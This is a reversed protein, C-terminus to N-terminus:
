VSKEVTTKKYIKLLILSCAYGVCLIVIRPKCKRAIEDGDGCCVRGIICRSKITIRDIGLWRMRVFCGLTCIEAGRMPLGFQKQDHQSREQLTACGMDRPEHSSYETHPERVLDYSKKMARKFASFKQLRSFRM